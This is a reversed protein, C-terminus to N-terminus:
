SSTRAFGQLLSTEAVSQLIRQAPDEPIKQLLIRLIEQMDDRNVEADINSSLFYDRLAAHMSKKSIYPLYGSKTHIWYEYRGRDSAEDNFCRYFEKIKLPQHLVRM